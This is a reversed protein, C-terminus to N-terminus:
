AHPERASPAPTFPRIGVGRNTRASAIWALTSSSRAHRGLTRRGTAMFTGARWANLAVGPDYKEAVKGPIEVSPM